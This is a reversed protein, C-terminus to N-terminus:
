SKFCLLMYYNLVLLLSSSLEEETEEMTDNKLHLYTQFKKYVNFTNCTM